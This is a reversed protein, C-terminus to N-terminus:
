RYKWPHINIKLNTNEGMKGARKGKKRGKKREKKRGGGRNIKQEQDYKKGLWGFVCKKQGGGRFFLCWQTPM